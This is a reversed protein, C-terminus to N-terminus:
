RATWTPLRDRRHPLDQVMELLQSRPRLKMGARARVSAPRGTESILMKGRSSTGWDWIGDASGAVPWRLANPESERLAAEVWAITLGVDKSIGGCAQPRRRDSIVVVMNVPDLARIRGTSPDTIGSGMTPDAVPIWELLSAAGVRDRDESHIAKDCHPRRLPRARDSGGSGNSAPSVASVKEPELDNIWIVDLTADAM